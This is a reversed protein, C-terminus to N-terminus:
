PTLVVSFVVSVESYTVTSQLCVVVLCAVVEWVVGTSGTGASIVEVVLSGSLDVFASGVCVTEVVVRGVEVCVSAVDDTGVEVADRTGDM